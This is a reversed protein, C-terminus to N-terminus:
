PAAPLYRFAASLLRSTAGVTVVVDVLKSPASGRAPVFGRIRKSSVDTLTAQIGDFTVTTNAMNGFGAGGIEFKHTGTIPARWPFVDYVAVGGTGGDNPKALVLKGASFDAGILVGGTGATVDLGALQVNLNTASVVQTGDSSLKVRKTENNWRQVILQGRMTGGFTQARYEDIGNTSSEFIMMTQTFGPDPAESAGHYVNQKSQGAARARNRNPHGYYGGAVVHNLEDAEAPHPSGGDTAPGTSGPGLNLDPGNDLSYIRDATTLVVDYSNRFGAAFVSVDAGAVVGHTHGQVQDTVTGATGPGACGFPQACTAYAIAGDFSAGKSIEAKLLAGAYPSEPIGGFNCVEVGANTNGGVSIFLDGANDFFMGNVAHDHNSTPLGTIVPTVTSFNNASSLKSVKGIYNFPPTFNCGGGAAFIKSHGVYVDFNGANDYPDFAIGLIGKHVLAQVATIVQTDTVNYDQDFSYATIAGDLGTVYLRLDPGWAAQTPSAVTALNSLTFAIPPPPGGDYVFQLARSLGGPTEVTVSVLGTGPPTLFSITTPTASIQAGSLSTNGWHVVVSSAPFFGLGTIAVPDGGAQDGMSPGTNVIPAMGIEDHTTVDADIGQQAGGGAAITVGVPLAAPSAAAFRAEVTHRGAELFIPGATALGDVLLRRDNCGSANLTY